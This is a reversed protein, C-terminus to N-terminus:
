DSAMTRLQEPSTTAGPALSAGDLLEAITVLRDVLESFEFYGMGALLLAGNIALLLADAIRPDATPGVADHIRAALNEGIARRLEAVDPDPLLMAILAADALAPEAGFVEGPGELADRIRQGLPQTEDIDWPGLDDIQRWLIQAVLHAKSTFYNYATTHTVGAAAAVSRLTTQEYGHERIQDLGARLLSALTSAQRASLWQRPRLENM